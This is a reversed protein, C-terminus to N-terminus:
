SGCLDCFEDDSSLVGGEGAEITSETDMALNETEHELELNELRVVAQASFSGGAAGETNETASETDVHSAMVADSDIVGASARHALLTPALLGPFKESDPRRPAAPRKSSRVTQKSSTPVANGTIGRLARGGRGRAISLSDYLLKVNLSPSQPADVVVPASPIIIGARGAFLDERNTLLLGAWPQLGELSRFEDYKCVATEVHKIGDSPIDHYDVPGFSGFYSRVCHVVSMWTTHSVVGGECEDFNFEYNFNGAILLLSKLVKM